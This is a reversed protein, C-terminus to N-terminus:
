RRVGAPAPEAARMAAITAPVTEHAAHSHRSLEVAVLGAYGSEILARLAAQLDLEGDGLLLHEHVGRRMDDIHVHALRRAFKRVCDDAPAEELCVCHGLDLTLGLADPRGLDRALAEYHDLREVLMGPEPEFGLRVGRESAYALLREVGECLQVWAAERDVGDPLEGSWLSVVDSGLDAAVDIARRVLEVRRESGESVLSPHHKRRPDLVFRGGTEIACDLDLTVLLDRLRATRNALGPAFPDFHVHDLTLAVGEYGCDALLRLAEDLRHGTLGNTVYAYRLGGM